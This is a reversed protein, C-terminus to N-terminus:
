RCVRRKRIVYAQYRPSWREVRVTRCRPRAQAASGAILGAALGIIAGAAIAGGHNRRGRRYRRRGVEEVGTAQTEIQASKFVSIPTASATAPVAISTTAIAAATAAAVFASKLNM